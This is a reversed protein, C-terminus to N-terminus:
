DARFMLAAGHQLFSFGSSSRAFVALAVRAVSGSSYPTVM